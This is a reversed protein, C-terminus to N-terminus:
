KGLKKEIMDVMNKNAELLAEIDGTIEITEMVDGQKISDVVKQDEASVVHGFITHRANLWDTPVHTIFFQSGNTGPGANAMALIGPQDFNVGKVFEDKFNYGPGGSGTGRPDGGQIMFDKIVRHFKLNNYYGKNALVVFNTVTVPAVEPLLVLNIEGKATKIKANLKVNEMNIEKEEQVNINLPKKVELPLKKFFYIGMIIVSLILLNFMRKM